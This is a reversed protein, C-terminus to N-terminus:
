HPGIYSGPRVGHEEFSELTDSFPRGNKIGVVYKGNASEWYQEGSPGEQMEEIYTWGTQSYKRAEQLVKKLEQATVSGKEDVLETLKRRVYGMESFKGGDGPNGGSRATGSMCSISGAALGNVGGGIIATPEIVAEGPGSVLGLLGASAGAAMGAGTALAMCGGRSNGLRNLAGSTMQALQQGPQVFNQYLRFSFDFWWPVGDGGSGNVTVSDGGCPSSNTGAVGDVVECDQGSPDTYRLPNNRGYSYLNWSQPDEPWQDNFPEDASTFRGQM